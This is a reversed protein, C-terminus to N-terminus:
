FILCVPKPQAHMRSPMPTTQLLLFRQAKVTLWKMITVTKLTRMCRRLSFLCGMLHLAMGNRLLLNYLGRRGREPIIKIQMRPQCRLFPQCQTGYCIKGTEWVVSVTRLSIFLASSWTNGQSFTTEDLTILGNNWFRRNVSLSGTFLSRQTKTITGIQAILHLVVKRCIQGSCLHRIEFAGCHILIIWVSSREQM